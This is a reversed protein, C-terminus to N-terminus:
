MPALGLSLMPDHRGQGQGQPSCLQTGAAAPGCPCVLLCPIPRSRGEWSLTAPGATQTGLGEEVAGACGKARM